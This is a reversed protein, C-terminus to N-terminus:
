GKSMKSQLERMGREYEAFMGLGVSARREDLAAIDDIPRPGFVGTTDDTYFQTGYRQPLGEHVRVRDELYAIEKAQIEEAPQSRMRELCRKQFELDHDAHQVLLWALHSAKIGVKTITPWGIEDIITKMRDTNQHDVSPDWRTPDNRGSERMEQDVKAMQIIESAISEYKMDAMMM